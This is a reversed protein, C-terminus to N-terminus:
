KCSIMAGGLNACVTYCETLSSANGISRPAPTGRIQCMCDCGGAVSEIEQQTLEQM